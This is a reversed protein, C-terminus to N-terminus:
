DTGPVVAELARDMVPDGGDPTTPDAVEIAPQIGAGEIKRGNPTSWTAVTLKLSSGDAFEQFSQVSGKGFTTSGVVTATGYDQLAGALIEAASASGGNVLVALPLGKLTPTGSARLIDTEGSVHQETLVTTDPDLFASAVEVAADLFGGPNNRLDLIVAAPPDLLVDRALSHFLQGTEETFHSITIVAVSRGRVDRRASTVSRVDIRQRTVEIVVPEAGGARVVTLRVVTGRKGRIKQVAEEVTLDTALTEDIRLLRDGPQVGAVAAPSDPLPAIVVLEQDRIGLEAGIGDFSTEGLSARFEEAATPNFFTSYRDGLADVIGRVAGYYLAQADVPGRVYDTAITDWVEEALRPDAGTRGRLVNFLASRLDTAPATPVVARGAVFGLLLGILLAAAVVGRRRRPLNEPVTM